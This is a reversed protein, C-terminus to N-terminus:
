YCQLFLDTSQKQSIEREQSVLIKKIDEPKQVVTSEFIVKIAKSFLFVDQRM